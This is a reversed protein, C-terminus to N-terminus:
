EWSYNAVKGAFMASATINVALAFGDNFMDAARGMFTRKKYIKKDDITNITYSQQNGLKGRKIPAIEPIHEKSTENNIIVANIQRIAGTNQFDEPIIISTLLEQLTTQEPNISPVLANVHTVAKQNNSTAPLLSVEPRIKIPIQLNISLNIEYEPVFNQQSHTSM